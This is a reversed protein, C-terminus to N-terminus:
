KPSLRGRLAPALQLETAFLRREDPHANGLEATLELITRYLNYTMTM